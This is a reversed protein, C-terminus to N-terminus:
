SAAAKRALYEAKAREEERDFRADEQLLWKALPLAEAKQDIEAVFMLEEAMEELAKKEGSEKAVIKFLLALRSALSRHKYFAEM